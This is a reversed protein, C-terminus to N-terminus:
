LDEDTLDLCRCKRGNETCECTAPPEVTLKDLHPKFLWGLPDPWDRLWSDKTM